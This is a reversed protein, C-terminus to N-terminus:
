AVNAGKNQMSELTGIGSEVISRSVQAGADRDSVAARIEPLRAIL